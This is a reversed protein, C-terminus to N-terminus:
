AKSWFKWWPTPSAPLEKPEFWVANKGCAYENGKLPSRNASAFEPKNGGHILDKGNKPNTCINLGTYHNCDKCFKVEISM